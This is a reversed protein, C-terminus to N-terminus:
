LDAKVGDDAEVEAKVEPIEFKIGANEQLFSLMDDVTRGGEYPIPKADKGSPFFTITPFGQASHPAPADNETADMKAIVISQVGSLKTALEDYIPELKKCHGCWPAYQEMLVDKDEAMVIDTWTSGVVVTVPGDNSEPVPASKLNPTLKGDIYSQAWAAVTDATFEDEPNFIYKVLGEFEIIAVGPEGTVGIQDRFRGLVKTDIWAFLLKGNGALKASAATMVEKFKDHAENGPEAFLIVCPHPVYLNANDRSLEDFLPVAALLASTELKESVDVANWIALEDAGFTKTIVQGPKATAKGSFVKM